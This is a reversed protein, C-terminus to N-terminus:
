GLAGLIELLQSPRAEVVLGPGDWLPTGEPLHGYLSTAVAMTRSAASDWKSEVALRRVEVGHSRMRDTWRALPIPGPIRDSKHGNCTPHAAVLNEIADNPWRAWPIFHDVASRGQLRVGCYFCNGRQLQGLGNRLAPPFATREAGFLHLRLDDEVPTLKNLEAVMRVWHAEVLPRVLPSLRVLQDAAGPRFVVADDALQHLRLLSVSEQWGVDYIFPQPVGDLVQLRLIPYRAVTLEVQDLM